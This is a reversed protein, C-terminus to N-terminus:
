FRDNQPVDGDDVTASAPRVGRKDDVLSLDGRDPGSVRLRRAAGADDVAGPLEDDRSEPVHVDMQGEGALRGQEVEDRGADRAHAVHSAVDPLEDPPPALDRFAHADTGGDDLGTGQDDTVRRTKRMAEGDSARLSYVLVDSLELAPQMDVEYRH